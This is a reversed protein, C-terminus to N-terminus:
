RVRRLNSVGRLKETSQVTGDDDFDYWDGAIVLETFLRSARSTYYEMKQREASDENGFDAINPLIYESLAKYVCLDTFDSKRDVIKTADLAPIDVRSVSGSANSIYYDRWWDSARFETLIRETTRILQDEVVDITLGENAEFIRQDRDVVDQYEAFSLVTQGSSIFAM